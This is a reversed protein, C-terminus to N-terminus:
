AWAGALAVLAATEAVAAVAGLGDGTYGGLRLRMLRLLAYGAALAALIALGGAAGCLLAVLTATGLAAAIEAPGAGGGMGHGLGDARAPPALATAPVILARGACAALVLALVGEAPDLAALASWRLGLAVLLALAGFTGLRSDRMIELARARDSTAGLGDALDALGDEHLAGTLLLGAGLALGAAVPAPLVAGAALWVLGALAGILAGVLAFYRSARLMRGEEWGHDPVPLRTLFAVATLLRRAEADIAARGSM